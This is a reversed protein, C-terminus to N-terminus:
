VCRSRNPSSKRAKPKGDSVSMNAGMWHSQSCGTGGVESPEDQSGHPLARLPVSVVVVGSIVSYAPKKDCESNLSCFLERIRESMWRAQWCPMCYMGIVVCWLVLVSRLCLFGWKACDHHWNWGKGRRLGVSHEHTFVPHPLTPPPPCELLSQLTKVSQRQLRGVKVHWLTIIRVESGGLPWPVLFSCLRLEARQVSKERSAIVTRAHTHFNPFAAHM